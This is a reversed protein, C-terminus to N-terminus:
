DKKQFEKFNKPKKPNLLRKEGDKGLRKKVDDTFDGDKNVFKALHPPLEGEAVDAKRSKDKSVGGKFQNDTAVPHDKKETKKKVDAKLKDDNDSDDMDDDAKEEVLKASYGKAAKADKKAFSALNGMAKNIADKESSAKVTKVGTPSEVRWTKMVAAETIQDILQAYTKM